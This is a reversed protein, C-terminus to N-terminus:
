FARASATIGRDKLFAAVRPRADHERAFSVGIRNGRRWRFTVDFTGLGDVDIFHVGRPLFEPVEPATLCAGGYSLDSVTAAFANDATVLQCPLDLPVRGDDLLDSLTVM